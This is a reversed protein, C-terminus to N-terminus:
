INNCGHSLPLAGAELATSQQNLDLRISQERLEIASCKNSECSTVPEIGTPFVAMQNM